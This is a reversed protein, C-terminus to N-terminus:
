AEGEQEALVAMAKRRASLEEYMKTKTKEDLNYFLAPIIGPLKVLFAVITWLSFIFFQASNGQARKEVYAQIDYGFCISAPLTVPM